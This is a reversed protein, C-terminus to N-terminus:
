KGFKTSGSGGHGLILREEQEDNRIIDRFMIGENDCKECKNPLEEFSECKCKHVKDCQGCYYTMGIMM